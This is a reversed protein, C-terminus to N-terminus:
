ERGAGRSSIAVRRSKAHVDALADRILDSAFGLEVLAELVETGLADRVQDPSIGEKGWQEVRGIILRLRDLCNDMLVTRSRGQM